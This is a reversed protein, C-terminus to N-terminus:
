YVTSSARGYGKVSVDFSRVVQTDTNDYFIIKFGNLTKDSIVYYDGSQANDQTIQINPSTGPGFFAPDYSVQYTGSILSTLNNLSYVRDPMDAKIVGDIVIPSVSPKNSKLKLRFQFTSGTFDGITFSRWENYNDQSGESIPDIASMTTWASMVNLQNTYRVQTEVDWESYKSNSLALVSDLTIWNDMIDEVTYGEAQILSQLRVSYIDGLELLSAYYYYGESYYENTSVGGSTITQLILGGDLELVRDKEGTLTPFDSTEEVVNLNFLNPISTIALAEVQSENGNYDVAKILYTGTRAQVNALTNTNGTRLLPISSTWTASAIPSYRILYEKLDVDTVPTWNLQLVENTINIYLSEVDSPRETKLMPTATVFGVEGLDLKSGDAAVALVKFSHETGLFASDVLYRGYSNRTVTYLNYGTGNDAYIEFAEYTGGELPVDWDLDVYHQYGAGTFYWTNAIVELSQVEGPAVGEATLTRNINPIYPPFVDTSEADYVADAKEVLTLQATFEDAPVITKVLYDGVISGVEGIVILDGVDPIDGLLDFTNSNIVNLSGTYIGSVSRFVYGYSPGLITIVGDDITIQNGSVSRVRAPTGGVKMVDQSLQVYDGRTCVLNEFDVTINISEQRLLNQAMMYRGFRWAQEANTCAFSELEDFVLANTSDFGDSYVTIQGQSWDASPDIFGIKVADPPNSYNRSSSFNSSNRPTFLQVPITKLKDLLVGYKGDIINLSAQAANAVTSLAGQLTTDYDLIFNCQFRKTSFDRTPTPPPIEDCFDAWEVLSTTDLRNKDVAKKNVEGTLLDAFVWAPNNTIQRSWTSTNSDYVELVSSGIASLNQIAGNIQNTARIKIELFVHRKDTIIPESNFRTLLSYLTLDDQVQFNADSYSAVRKIRVKYSAIERPKFKFTSYVQGTESRTILSQGFTTSKTVTQGLQFTQYYTDFPLNFRSYLTRNHTQIAYVLVRDLTVTSYGSVSYPVINTVYGLFNGNNFVSSGVVFDDNESVIITDRGANFGFTACDIVWEDPPLDYKNGFLDTYLGGSGWSTVVVNQFLLDFGTGVEVDTFPPYPLPIDFTGSAGGSSTFDYVYTPDNFSRWVDEGVKSFQIDLEITRSYQQANTGYAVLGNPCVFNLIIEQDTSTINTAANRIVQYDSPDGGDVENENIAVSTSDQEVEGKYLSFSPNVMEDWVGESVTPKNLDVFRYEVDAYENIPTDGIKLGGVTMPGLGFDYVGYFYQVLQGTSQDTEIETYPAAAVNPFIKHTGYLKPVYGYKKVANSQSSISFMQSSAYDNSGGFGGFGGANPPPIISNLILTSGIAAAGAALAVAGSSWGLGTFGLGGGGTYAATVAVAALIAVQKFIQGFDGGRIKPAILISSRDGVLCYEWFERGIEEGEMFVCFHELIKEDESDIKNEKLARKVLSDLKEGEIFQVDIPNSSIANLRIKIM